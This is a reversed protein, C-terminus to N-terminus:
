HIIQKLIHDIKDGEASPGPIKGSTGFGVNCVVTNGFGLVM